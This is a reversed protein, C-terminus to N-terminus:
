SAAALCASAAERATQEKGSESILRANNNAGSNTTSLLLQASM